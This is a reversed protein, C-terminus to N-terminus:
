PALGGFGLSIGHLAAATHRAEATGTGGHTWVRSLGPEALRIGRGVGDQEVALGSWVRAIPM